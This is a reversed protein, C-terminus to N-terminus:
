KKRKQKKYYISFGIGLGTIGVAVFAAAFLATSDDFGLKPVATKSIAHNRCTITIDQGKMRFEIKDALQQYGAPAKKEKFYYEGFALDSINIEGKEDTIYTGINKGDATFLEFEAGPLKKSENNADIKILTVKAKELKNVAPNEKNIDFVTVPENELTLEFDHKEEDLIYGELTQLEKFYYHGSVLAAKLTAKGEENTKIVGILSDKPLISEGRYDMIDENTYIGFFIGELPKKGYGFTGNEPNLMEGVKYVNIETDIVDNEIDLSIDVVQDKKDKTLVVEYKKHNMALGAPTKTEKLVYEGLPLDKSIGKGEEDTTITDVANGDMDYVTFEVGPLSRKEYEMRNIKGFDSDYTSIGTLMDGVKDITITGTKEFEDVMEVKLIEGSELVTFPIEEALEYGDPAQEEILIYDGPALRDIRHVKGDTIWSTVENGDSDKITLKAGIVEKGGIDVKSIDVKTFDNTVEQEAVIVTQEQNTYQLNFDILEESQVYGPSPKLEKAYYHAIPLDKTFAAVGNEDSFVTEILTDAPIVIGEGILIDEATYLGFITGAVPNKTEIDTKKIQISVRQRENVYESDSYVVEVEDGAYELPFEQIEKNLVFGPGATVEEIKYKGLPLDTLEAKGDKDTKIMSVLEDKRYLTIRNGERDCQYDPSYIDEAAYIKFEAGEVNGMEYIFDSDDKGSDLIGLFEGFRRLINKKKEGYGSLHEGKKQLRLSGTQRQNEYDVRIVVVGTEEEVEYAQDSSLTFEIPEGKVYGDAAAIEELRYNGMKLKEPTLLYGQDSVEFETHEVLEPYHTYQKVYEENDLNYIKFVTGKHLVPMKSTGDIKYIKLIAQFEYDIFVRWQQPERKDENITVIFPDIRNYNEPTTSEIVVYKGYALENSVAYGKEDTFLEPMPIGKSDESYDLATTEESFDYGRFQEPSYNGNGDPKIDGAKVGKLSRILYIKFGAGKLLDAETQEGDSGVKILQFPQKKVTENVTVERHVIKVDQEEYAAEVPYETPDLLYGESAVLERICYKGLYLDTFDLEGNENIEGKSVLEGKKHVTGSKKNPHQIDEAAFLGYEAGILAADGQSLFEHTEKDIKRVHIKARVEENQFAHSFVYEYTQDNKYTYTFEYTEESRYYKEPAQIERIYYTYNIPIDASFEAIGDRNSISSQILTDKDLVTRGNIKITEKNYLGFKAGELTTDDNQSHKVSTVKIKPRKNNYESEALALSATQGAYTLSVTKTTEQENKGIVLDAPAKTEVIRYKGLYLEESVACGDEGTTLNAILTDRKHIVTKKDQSIIDEAAYISYDAGPFSADEYIFNVPDSGNVSALKEGSKHIKIKGKQEKNGAKVDTNGGAVLKVNHVETSLCYGTPATIEKLYVTEQTKTFETSSSGKEDTPPMNVILSTCAEDKYVGFVAGSLSVNTDRDKKILTIRAIDMWKVKFRVSNAKEEIFDGYGIDQITSGTSLVLTKWQSGIQGTLKGSDWEGTATKPATFYFSGGGYIKITGGTQSKGDSANHYTVNSPLDLTVYNRHDGNLQFTKTKQSDGDLDAKEYDSNLSIAAVPPNEQGFLYNIYGLVGTEELSGATCGHFGADGIYAYSAAIHTFIYRTDADLQPMYQETLDGPGGYGYYLVKQLNANTNLVEAVYDADPPSAKPSELCYAIKGNVYFYNTEYNGINSPYRLTKGKVLSVNSSRQAAMRAPVVSLFLSDEVDEVVVLEQENEGGSTDLNDASDDLDPKGPEGTQNMDAKDPAVSPDADESEDGSDTGTKTHGNKSPSEPERSKVTIMRSIQYALNEDRVPYVEYVAQYKGPVDNAFNTLKEDVANKFIIKVKEEAFFLKTFDHEIDFDTQAKISIDQAIVFEDETLREKMESLFPLNSAGENYLIFNDEQVPAKDEASEVTQIEPKASEAAFATMSSHLITTCCILFALTGSMIRQKRIM